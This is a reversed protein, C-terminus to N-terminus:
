RPPLMVATLWFNEIRHGVVLFQELNLAIVLDIKEGRYKGALYDRMRELQDPTPLGKADLYEIFLAIEPYDQRLRALVGALENDSWAYGYHYSNLIVIQPHNHNAAAPWSWFVPFGAVLWM